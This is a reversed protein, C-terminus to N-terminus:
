APPGKNGAAAAALVERIKRTLSGPTIPKQLYAVGSNLIGHQLVADDTYGSMFLVKMEPRATALREALQRGSMRPLVVDTLLLDIRAGHQECILLAEGGNPAELVVYGNRRLIGRAVARVHEDDEVLLITESGRGSEPAPRQSPRTEAAGGVKPLYVRFTSGRGPESYVWVHGGSQKVIGFVTALGLGTGKGMEKTTFFPEFIRSLTDKEIGTGTDTVALMVYSGPRVDHHGHAYDDDLEVNKTEITLNGGEPMADRANVALNMVVQEIQGPDVKVAWLGATPLATLKIDAGLLRRLMKEMGAITQNLDLVKAEFVQQRSFTLLQRTLDVARIGAARIEDIDARLPEDPKLDAGIMEAYSLIVSLINNFDHAVGAALRGVAEMKQAQRLQAEVSRQATMDRVIGLVVPRGELSFPAFSVDVPFEGGGKRRGRLNLGEGMRRREPNALYARPHLSRHDGSVAPLFTELDDGAFGGHEYGFIREAETNALVISGDSAVLLIADPAADFLEQFMGERQRLEQTRMKLRAESEDLAAKAQRHAERAAYERLEREIAPLLRGLRGKLIFDQAGARLATVAAEEGITGSVIIFPIDLHSEHLVSLAAPADFEPMSFDSLILDWSEQLLAKRMESATEVRRHSVDFGGRSLEVLVLEADDESDEVMLLRLPTM